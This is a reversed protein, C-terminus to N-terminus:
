FPIQNPSLSEVKARAMKHIEDMTEYYDKVMDPNTGIQGSLQNAYRDALEMMVVGVLYIMAAHEMPTCIQDEAPVSANKLIAENSKLKGDDLDIIPMIRSINRSVWNVTNRFSDM